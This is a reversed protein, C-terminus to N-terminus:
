IPRTVVLCPSWSEPSYTATICEPMVFPGAAACAPTVSSILPARSGSNFKQLMIHFAQGGNTHSVSVENLIIDSKLLGAFEALRKCRSDFDGVYFFGYKEDSTTYYAM